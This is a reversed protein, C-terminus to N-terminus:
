EPTRATPLYAELLTEGFRYGLGTADRFLSACIQFGCQKSAGRASLLLNPRAVFMPPSMQM